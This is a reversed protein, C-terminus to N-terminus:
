WNSKLWAATATLDLNQAFELLYPIQDVRDMDIYVRPPFAPGLRHYQEGLLQRCQYDAIGAVGDLMLNVLPRAWQGYGWDLTQGKIYVLPTGTGLSLLAVDSLAPRNAYRCDQSQALACMSPNTAFVGGDIYGDVSPFYTPAAATYLGVKYALQDSDNGPGPLNHFLKPKWSRSAPDSSENDLDFATILVQKKLQGLTSQGFIGKLESELNTTSYDAGIVSGLDVIDDFWTDDFIAKGKSEYLHRITDPPLGYALGLALLGGTSTGALLDAKDLWGELGPMENLRQMVIAPIVGRVGGGDFCLIRYTM